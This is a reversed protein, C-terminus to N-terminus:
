TFGHSNFLRDSALLVCTHGYSSEQSPPAFCNLKDQELKKSRRERQMHDASLVRLEMILRERGFLICALAQPMSISDHGSFILEM